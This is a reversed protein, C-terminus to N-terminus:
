EAARAADDDLEAQEILQGFAMIVVDLDGHAAVLGRILDDHSASDTADFHVIAVDLGPRALEGVIVEDPRRAALVVTRTSTTLLESVNARGIDSSGGLLVITQPERLANEM